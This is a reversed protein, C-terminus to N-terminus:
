LTLGDYLAGTVASITLNNGSGTATFSAAKFQTQLATLTAFGNNVAPHSLGDGFNGGDTILGFGNTNIINTTNAKTFASQSLNLASNAIPFSSGILNQNSNALNFGAQALVTATNAQNYASSISGSTNAKIFSANATNYANQLGSGIDIGAISVPGSFADGSINAASSFSTTLNAAYLITGDHFTVSNVPM